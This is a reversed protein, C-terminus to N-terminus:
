MTINTSHKNYHSQSVSQNAWFPLYKTVNARSSADAIPALRTHTFAATHADTIFILGYYYLVELM